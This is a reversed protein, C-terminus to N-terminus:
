PVRLHQVDAAFLCLRRYFGHWSRNLVRSHVLGPLPAFDSEADGTLHLGAAAVEVYGDVFVFLAARALYEGLYALGAAANGRLALGHAPHCGKSQPAANLGLLYHGLHAAYAAMKRDAEARTLDRGARVRHGLCHVPIEPVLQLCAPGGHGVDAGKTAQGLLVGHAMLDQLAPGARVAAASYLVRVPTEHAPAATVALAALFNSKKGIEKNPPFSFIEVRGRGRFFYSIKPPLTPM